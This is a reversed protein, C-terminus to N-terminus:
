SFPKSWFVHTRAIDSRVHPAPPFYRQSRVLGSPSSILANPSYRSSTGPFFITKVQFHSSSSVQSFRVLTTVTSSDSDPPPVSSRNVCSCNGLSSDRSRWLSPQFLRRSRSACNILLYITRIFLPPPLFSCRLLQLFLRPIPECVLTTHLAQVKRRCRRSRPLM